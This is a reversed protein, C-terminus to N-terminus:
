QEPANANGWRTGGTEEVARVVAELDDLLEDLCRCRDLSYSCRWSHLTEEPNRSVGNAVLAAELAERLEPM